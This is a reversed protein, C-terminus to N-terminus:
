RLAQGNLEAPTPQTPQIVTTEIPLPKNIVANTQAQAQSMLTILQDLKQETSIVSPTQPEAKLKAQYDKIKVGLNNYVESSEYMALAVIIMHLMPITFLGSSQMYIGFCVIGMHQFANQFFKAKQTYNLAFDVIFLAVLVVLAWGLNAIAWTCIATLSIAGIKVSGIVKDGENM